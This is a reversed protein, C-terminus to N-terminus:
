SKTKTLFFLKCFRKEGLLFITKRIMNKKESYRKSTKRKISPGM